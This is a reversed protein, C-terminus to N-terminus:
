RPRNGGSLADERPMTSGMSPGDSYENGGRNYVTLTAYKTPITRLIKFTLSETLADEFALNLPIPATM